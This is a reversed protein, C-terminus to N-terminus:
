EPPVGIAVRSDYTDVGTVELVTACTKAALGIGRGEMRLYFILGHGESVMRDLAMHLQAACECSDSDFVESFTCISHIRVLPRAEILPDGIHVVLDGDVADTLAIAEFSMPGWRRSNLKAVSGLFGRKYKM